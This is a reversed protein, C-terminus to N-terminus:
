YTSLYNQTWTFTGNGQNNIFMFGEGVTLVPEPVSYTDSPDAFGAPMSSDITVTQIKTGTWFNLCSGDLDGNQNCFGLVSSIGGALPLYSSLPYNGPVLSHTLQGEPVLGVFTVTFTTGSNNQILAAEGPNLTANGDPSWQSGNWTYINNWGSGDWKKIQTGAPLVTGDPMTHNPGINFLGDLTNLPADLQDAVLNSGSQITLREFGIAQSHYTGNSLKYFRYGVGNVNGDTYSSNGNGDLTVGGVPTWSKLDTSSYVTWSTNADGSIVFSFASGSVQGSSLAPVNGGACASYNQSWTVNGNGQNNIFMFGEGVTLVPEPVSYTDSPDAFGAPMSSDFTVTQLPTGTWFSLQNGDLIGNQNCFGLVSSIGGALPLYSSLPYNGPVLSHTLQGEPVLGVFTVTFATGSNNQIFAAEGPNL